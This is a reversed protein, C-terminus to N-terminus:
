SSPGPRFVSRTRSSAASTCAPFFRSCKGSPRAGPRVCGSPSTSARAKPSCCPPGSGPPARRRCSSFRAAGLDRTGTGCCDRSSASSSPSRGHPIGARLGRVAPRRLARPGERLGHARRTLRLLRPMGRAHQRSAGRDRADGGRDPAAVRTGDRAGRFGPSRARLRRLANRGVDPFGEGLLALGHNGPVTLRQRAAPAGPGM